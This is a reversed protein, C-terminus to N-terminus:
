VTAKGNHNVLAFITYILIAFLLTASSASKGELTAHEGDEGERPSARYPHGDPKNGGSM